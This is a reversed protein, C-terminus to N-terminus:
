HGVAGPAEGRAGHRRRGRDHQGRAAGERRCGLLCRGCRGGLGSGVRGGRNFGRAQGLGDRALVQESM